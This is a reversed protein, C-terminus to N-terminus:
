NRTSFAGGYAALAGGDARGIYHDETMRQSSHGLQQRIIALPVGENAALTAGTARLGHPSTIQELGARTLIRRIVLYLAARHYPENPQIKTGRKGRGRWIYATPQSRGQATMDDLHETFLAALDPRISVTRAVGTKTTNRDGQRSVTISCSAIDIDRRQLGCLEGTRLGAEVATRILLTETLNTCSALLQEYQDRNLARDKARRQESVPKRPKPVPTVPNPRGHRSTWIAVLNHLLEYTYRQQMASVNQEDLTHLWHEVALTTLEDMRSRASSSNSTSATHAAAAASRAPHSTAGASPSLTSPGSASHRCAARCTRLGHLPTANTAFTTTAPMAYLMPSASRQMSARIALADQMTGAVKIRKRPLTRPQWFSYPCDCDDPNDATTCAVTHDRRLGNGLPESYGRRVTTRDPPTLTTTM